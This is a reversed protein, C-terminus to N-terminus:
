NNYYCIFFGIFDHRKITLMAQGGYNGNKSIQPYLNCANNPVGNILNPAEIVRACVPFTARFHLLNRGYFVCYGRSDTLRCVLTFFVTARQPRKGGGSETLIRGERASAYAQLATEM